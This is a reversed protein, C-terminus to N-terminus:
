DTLSFDFRRVVEQAPEFTFISESISIVGLKKLELAAYMIEESYPGYKEPVFSFFDPDKLDFDYKLMFLFKELQTIGKVKNLKYLLALIWKYRTDSLNNKLAGDITRIMNAIMKGKESLSLIRKFPFEKTQDEVILKEEILENIRDEITTSSGGVDKQIELVFKAGDM